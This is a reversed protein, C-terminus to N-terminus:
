VSVVPNYHMVVLIDDVNESKILFSGIQICVINSQPLGCLTLMFSSLFLLINVLLWFEGIFPGFPLLTFLGFTFCYWNILFDYVKKLRRELKLRYNWDLQMILQIEAKPGEQELSGQSLPVHCQM